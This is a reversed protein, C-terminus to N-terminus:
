SVIAGNREGFVPYGGFGVEIGGGGGGRGGGQGEPEVEVGESAWKGTDVYFAKVFEIWAQVDEFTTLSGFSIRIAGL